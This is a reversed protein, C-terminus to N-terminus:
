SDFDVARYVRHADGPNIPAKENPIDYNVRVGRINFAVRGIVLQGPTSGSIWIFLAVVRAPGWGGACVCARM